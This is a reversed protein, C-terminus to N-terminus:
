SAAEWCLFRKNETCRMADMFAHYDFGPLKMVVTMMEEEGTAGQPFVCGSDPTSGILLWFIDAGWPGSDNTEVIIAQLDALAVREITGEPRHNIIETDTVELVFSAEPQLKEAEDKETSASPDKELDTM